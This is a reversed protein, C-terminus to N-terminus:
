ANGEEDWLDIRIVVEGTRNDYWYHDDVQEDSGVGRMSEVFMQVLDALTTEHYESRVNSLPDRMVLREVPHAEDAKSNDRSM